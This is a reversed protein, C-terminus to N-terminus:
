PMDEVLMVADNLTIAAGAADAEKAYRPVFTGGANVLLTGEFVAMAAGTTTTDTVDTALATTQALPRVSVTDSVYGNQRFSTMTATGGDFDVRLGDAATTETVWLIVKFHYKRGAKLTVSLGTDAPTITVNTGGGLAVKSSGASNQIWGTGTSGDTTGIVGAALRELGTDAATGSPDGSAFAYQGTGVMRLGTDDFRLVAAGSFAWYLKQGSDFFLGVNAFGSPHLGTATASGEPLTITASSGSGPVLGFMSRLLGVVINSVIGFM